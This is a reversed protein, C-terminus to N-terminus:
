EPVEMAVVHLERGRLIRPAPAGCAPCVLGSGPAPSREAECRECFVAVPVNEIHLTSGAALTEAAALEWSFSLAEPAIGSMAGVRLHVATVRDLGRARASRTVGDLISMAVSLEHM